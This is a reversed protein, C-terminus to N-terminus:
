QPLILKVIDAATLTKTFHVFGLVEVRVTVALLQSLINALGPLSTTVQAFLPIKTVQGAELKGPNSVLAITSNDALGLSVSIKDFPITIFSDNQIGLDVLHLGSSDFSTNLNISKVKISSSLYFYSLGTAALALIFINTAKL